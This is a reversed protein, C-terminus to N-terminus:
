VCWDRVVNKLANDLLVGHCILPIWGPCVDRDHDYIAYASAM